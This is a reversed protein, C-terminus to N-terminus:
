FISLLLCFTCPPLLFVWADTVMTVATSRASANPQLKHSQSGRSGWIPTSTVSSPSLLPLFPYLISPLAPLPPASQLGLSLLRCPCANGTTGERPDECGHSRSKDKAVEGTIVRRYGPCATHTDQKGAGGQQM